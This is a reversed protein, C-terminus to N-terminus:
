CSSSVGIWPNKFVTYISSLNNNNSINVILYNNQHGSTGSALEGISGYYTTGNNSQLLEATPGPLIWLYALMSQNTKSQITIRLAAVNNQAWFNFVTSLQGPYVDGGAEAAPANCIFSNYYTNFAPIGQDSSLYITDTTDNDASVHIIDNTNNMVLLKVANANNIYCFFASLAMIFFKTNLKKM